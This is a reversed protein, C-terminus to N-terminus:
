FNYKSNDEIRYSGVSTLVDKKKENLYDEIRKSSINKFLM